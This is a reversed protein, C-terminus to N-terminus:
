QSVPICYHLRAATLGPAWAPAGAQISSGAVTGTPRYVYTDLGSLIFVSRGVLRQGREGSVTPDFHLFGGFNLNLVIRSFLQDYRHEYSNSLSQIHLRHM